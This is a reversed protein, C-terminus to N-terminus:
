LARLWAQLASFLEPSVGAGSLQIRGQAKDYSLEVAGKLRHAVGETDIATVRPEPTRAPPASKVEPAVGPAAALDAFPDGAGRQTALAGGIRDLEEQATEAPPDLLASVLRSKFRHDESLTRSLELGLKEPINTPFQLLSDLAEVLPIFSNIKSRKSRSVSDFLGQLAAKQTPYLGAGYARLAIRAREYHSLNARIENEEVMAVYAAQMNDPAVIRARVTAFRPDQPAERHLRTLATLRRWGSILGHSKGGKAEPYAVVEIPTQQGRARLSAILAGMEEEDQVLRDRMLYGQDIVELPLAEILRGESRASSLAASLEDLAARTAAEGAVQAIPASGMGPMSPSLAPRATASPSPSTALFGDQAPTLRKRKAM